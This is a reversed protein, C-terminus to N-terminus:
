KSYLGNKYTVIGHDERSVGLADFLENRKKSNEYEEKLKVVTNRRRLGKLLYRSAQYLWAFPRLIPHKQAVTWNEIGRGQLFQFMGKLTRTSSLFRASVRSGEEQKRGFNGNALIYEMLRKCVRWDAGACWNRKPLGLFLECTRTTVIALNNLGAKEALRQFEPWKEDSLCQNVYMMWDIIQRLGLGSEMHHNIHELLVIGNVLDPLEHSTDIHDIILNDLIKAKEPDNKHAYYAHVEVEIDNNSFERHRKRVLEEESTIEYYGNQLLSDCVAKFDERRPMIDIDGMTRYLPNPYYKAAETGKLIVYPVTVPLQLQFHRYNINNAIQQYIEMKWTQRLEEPMDLQSLIAAPLAILSHAQAEKYVDEDVFAVGQHWLSQKILNLIEIECIDMM